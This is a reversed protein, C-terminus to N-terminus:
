LGKKLFIFSFNHILPGCSLKTTLVSDELNRLGPNSTRDSQIKM